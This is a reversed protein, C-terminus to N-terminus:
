DALARGVARVSAHASRFYRRPYRLRRRARLEVTVVSQERWWPEVRVVVPLRPWSGRLALSADAQHGGGPLPIFGSSFALSVGPRVTVGEAVFPLRDAVDDLPAFLHQRVASARRPSGDTRLQMSREHVARSVRRTRARVRDVQRALPDLHRRAATGADRLSALWEEVGGTSVLTAAPGTWDVDTSDHAPEIIEIRLPARTDSM